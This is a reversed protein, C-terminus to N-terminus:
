LTHGYCLMVTVTIPASCLCLGHGHLSLATITIHLIVIHSSHLVPACEKANLHCKIMSKVTGSKSYTQGRYM